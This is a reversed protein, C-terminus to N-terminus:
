WTPARVPYVLPIGYRAPGQGPEGWCFVEHSDSLLCSGEIDVAHVDGLLGNDWVQMPELAPWTTPTGDSMVYGGLGPQGGWCYARGETDIACSNWQTVTVDRLMEGALVGDSIVAVPVLSPSESGDGLYQEGWCYARGTTSIACTHRLATDITALDVGNLVGSTAVATPV